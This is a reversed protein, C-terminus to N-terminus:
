SKDLPITAEIITGDDPSSDFQLTGGLLNAREIMGIIGFPNKPLQDVDFGKGNDKVVLSVDIPTITLGVQIQSAKAHRVSNLIAEQAIRYLGVENRVSLPRGGGTINLEIPLKENSSLGDVLVQLAADLSRNELPAARLDLVSRRLDELYTRTLALAQQVKEQARELNKPNDIMADVTELQLGIGSLGQALTDHIERALRNREELTGIEISQAFLRAREIAISLLDGTTYLLKLDEQSLERWDRSAVNLVGLKKGHAYLPISAHYKLGHTGDELWQLRSCRIMNVNAAGELDGTRFTDLCFCSGEMRQPYESLAPPINQVAALYSQGTEEHLLWIWGTDLGLLEAVMALTTSLSRDLNIEKNLAQAIDNLIALERNRRQLKAKDSIRNSEQTAM